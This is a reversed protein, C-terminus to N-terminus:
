EGKFVIKEAEELSFGSAVEGDPFMIEYDNVFDGYIVSYGNAKARYISIGPLEDAAKFELHKM